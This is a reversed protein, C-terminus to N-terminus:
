DNKRDEKKVYVLREGDYFYTKNNLGNKVHNDLRRSNFTIYGDPMSESTRPSIKRSPEFFMYYVEKEEDVMQTQFNYKRKSRRAKPYFMGVGKISVEEFNALVDGLTQFCLEYIKNADTLSLQRGVREVMRKCFEEKNLM